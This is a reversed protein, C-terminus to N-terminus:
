GYSGLELRRRAAEEQHDIVHLFYHCIDGSNM